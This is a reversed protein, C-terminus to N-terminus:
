TELNLKQFFRTSEKFGRYFARSGKAEEARAKARYSKEKSKETRKQLHSMERRKKIGYLTGLIGIVISVAKLISDTTATKNLDSIQNTLNAIQRDQKEIIFSQTTCESSQICDSIGQTKNVAEAVLIPYVLVVISFLLIITKL